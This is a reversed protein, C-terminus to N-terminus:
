AEQKEKTKGEIQEMEGLLCLLTQAKNSRIENNIAENTSVLDDFKLNYEEWLYDLCMLYRSYISEPIPPLEMHAGCQLCVYEIPNGLTDTVLKSSIKSKCNPCMVRM